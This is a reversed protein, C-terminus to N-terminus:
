EGLILKCAEYKNNIIAKADPSLKAWSRELKGLLWTNATDIDMKHNIFALYFLSAVSDFHAMSDADALCLSEKTIKAKPKSGRHSLICAKVMEIKKAPYHYRQLLTEAERAGHIHHEEYMAFDKISAYDHLLASIEVIEEDASTKNALMKGYKVVNLIHHTWIGYGFHNSDNKCAEEVLSSIKNIM